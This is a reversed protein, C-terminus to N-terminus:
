RPAIASDRLSLGSIERKPTPPRGMSSSISNSHTTSYRVVAARPRRLGFVILAAGVFAITILIWRVGDLFAFAGLASPIEHRPWDPVIVIDGPLRSSTEM